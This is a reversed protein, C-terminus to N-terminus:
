EIEVKEGGSEYASLILKIVKSGEKGDIPFKTGTELCDYFHQFLLGHGTGYCGKGYVRTMSEFNKLEGNVLVYNSVIRISGDKTYLTIEPDYDAKSGNTAFFSFNANGTYLVSATDEVEIAEKLTLNSITATAYDPEGCFWELLDLTHLAQNILVGGGETKKKGRWDAQAYYKADRKWVMTAYGNVAKEEGLYQKVFENAPNYRNQLVVGLQATSNREAELIKEIEERSICLPKECLVNIGRELAYIVMEAHLYHPTCIHVVDPKEEDIMQKYDTYAKISPYSSFKETNVDCVAAVSRKMESLVQMHVTGIVGLGIIATKM